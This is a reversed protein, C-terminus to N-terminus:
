IEGRDSIDLSLGYFSFYPNTSNEQGQIQLMAGEECALDFKNMFRNLEGIPTYPTLVRANKDLVRASLKVGQARDAYAIMEDIGKKLKTDIIIPALEFTVHIPSGDAAGSTSGDSSYITADTYKSKEYVVGLTNGMWLKRKGSSNYKAFITMNQALERWRWSGTAINYTCMTNAYTIGNVTVNGVYINYEEDIVEAFFNAPTSNRFFDIMEGSINQPIGGTSAWVGDPNAWFTYAGSNKITRHNSCGTDAIKKKQTQDYLWMGEDTLIILKDWNAIGGVIAEGPDVDFFDTTSWTIAGATPVSSFYVRYPYETGASKTNLVYLRDRYRTIYKGQAMSGVNTSTSFTAGTLSGVPLFGDTAGWGVFFCYGIFTEMEVNIGAFNAWATEAAGIETWNGGTSYFLQTDDSTSDDVTALMKQTTVSQKFNFLGTISKSAELAAAGIRYYGTDKLLAGLKYSINGGNLVTLSEPHQLFPSVATNAGKLFNFMDIAVM